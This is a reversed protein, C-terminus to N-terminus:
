TKCRWHTDPKEQQRPGEMLDLYHRHTLQIMNEVSFRDLVHRQAKEVLSDRSHPAGLAMLLKQAADKIEGPEYLLGTVGDIVIEPIGGVNTALICTDALAADLLVTGLGERRSSVVLVDLARILLHPDDVFGLLHVANNLTLSRTLSELANREKGDGAIVCQFPLKSNRLENAIQVIDELGKEPSLAAVSGIWILDGPIGYREALMRKAEDKSQTWKRPRVASPVVLVKERPIGYNLLVNGIFQSIAIYSDVCPSFYRSRTFFSNKITSAVRRHVVLRLSPTGRKVALSLSHSRSSNADIIDVGNLRCYRRLASVSRPDLHSRSPLPIVEAVERFRNVTITNQKPYAISITYGIQRLGQALIYIQNEGGRWAKELNVFLVHM